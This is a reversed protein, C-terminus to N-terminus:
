VPVTLGRVTCLRGINIATAMLKVEGVAKALGRMCMRRMGRQEKVWANAPEVLAGRRKYLERNEPKALTERMTQVAAHKSVEVSPDAKALRRSKRDSILRPPGQCELNEVSHYGADALTMGIEPPQGCASEYERNVAAVMPQFLRFDISDVSVEAALIVHDESVAFQTNYGQIFGQRTKMLRSQPDTFNRNKAQGAKSTNPATKKAVLRARMREIASWKVQLRQHDDPHKALRGHPFKGTAAKKAQSEEYKRMQESRMREYQAEKKALVAESEALNREDLTPGATEFSEVCEQARDVRDAQRHGRRTQVSRIVARRAAEDDDDDDVSLVDDDADAAEAEATIEDILSRYYDESRNAGVAANAAIKTGDIAIVGVKGMGARVCEGLVQTFLDTFADVHESRFRAIVTHDPIDGGCAVRFAVDTHCQAEIARSSRVGLSYAYLLLVLLMDPDYGRQGARSTTTMRRRRKAFASTDLDAVLAEIVWVLHHAPLWERMDPPLLFQQDRDVRRYSTAM